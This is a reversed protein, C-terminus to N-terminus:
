GGHDLVEDLVVFGGVDASGDPRPGAHLVSGRGQRITIPRGLATVLRVAAAGTAEDEFIGAGAAFVRSRVTGAAEDEWAWADVFELGDPPGSLADIDAPSDLQRLEMEPAWAARGRIWTRGADDQWCPVEGAPPRLVTVPAGEAALLWATGVLPHGAFPLEVAPTFIRVAGSARDDVFVTESFGLEAAVAQRREQAVAGGDLFVGLPNGHAAADDTFVRLVHLLTM